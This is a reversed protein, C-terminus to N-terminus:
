AKPQSPAFWMSAFQPQRDIFQHKLAGAVHALLLVLMIWGGATHALVFRDHAETKQALPLAELFGIKPFPAAFYFLSNVKRTSASNIGWGILPMAIMMVYFLAHVAQAGLRELRSLTEDLPPSRHGIRWGIRVLSLALICLGTSIHLTVVVHRAEVKLGEMFSGTILNFIIALAILWHLIVAVASYRREAALSM